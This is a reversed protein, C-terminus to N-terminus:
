IGISKLKQYVFIQREHEWEFQQRIGKEMYFYSNLVASTPNRISILFLLQVVRIESDESPNRINFHFHNLNCVWWGSIEWDLFENPNLGRDAKIVDSPNWIEKLTPDAMAPIAFLLVLFVIMISRM